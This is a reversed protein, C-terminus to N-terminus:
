SHGSVPVQRPDRSRYLELITGSFERYRNAAFCNQHHQREGPSQQATLSKLLTINSVYQTWLTHSLDSLHAASSRVCPVCDMTSPFKNPILSDQTKARPTAAM